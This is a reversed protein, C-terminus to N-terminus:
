SDLPESREMEATLIQFYQQGNSETHALYGDTNIRIVKSVPNTVQDQFGYDRSYNGANYEFTGQM